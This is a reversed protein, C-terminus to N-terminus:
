NIKILKFVTVDGYTNDIFQVYFLGPVLSSVDLKADHDSATLISRLHPQGNADLIRCTVQGAAHDAFHVNLENAVPNPSLTISSSQKADDQLQSDSSTIDVQEILLIPQHFGETFSRQQKTIGEVSLEGLTWDLQIGAAQGSGGDSTLVEPTLQQACLVAFISCSYCILTLFHKM